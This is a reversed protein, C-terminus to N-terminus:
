KKLNKLHKLVTIMNDLVTAKEVKLCQPADKYDKDLNGLEDTYKDLLTDIESFVNVFQSNSKTKEPLEPMLYGQEILEEAYAPSIKLSTSYSGYVDNGDDASTTMDENYTSVYMDGNENLEMTDGSDLTFFPKKVILTKNM